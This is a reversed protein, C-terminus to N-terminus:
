RGSRRRPRPASAPSRSRCRRAATNVLNADEGGKQLAARYLEAAEAYQGYGFYADAPQTRARPRQRRGAGAHAAGALSARDEAIRAM